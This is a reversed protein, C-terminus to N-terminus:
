KNGFEKAFGRFPFRRRAEQPELLHNFRTLDGAGFTLGDIATRLEKHVFYKSRTRTRNAEGGVM